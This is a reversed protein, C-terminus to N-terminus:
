CRTKPGGPALASANSPNPELVETVRRLPRPRLEEEDFYRQATALHLDSQRQRLAEELQSRLEQVEIGIQM